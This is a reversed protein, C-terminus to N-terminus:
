CNVFTDGGAYACTDVLTGGSTRFFAKDGDNNWIYAGSRWYLDNSDNTGRGTHIKVTKGGGLRFTPFTYEHGARDKLTWGRLSRARTGTNKIVVYEQNLSSNSGDDTGPSNYQIKTICIAASAWAPVALLAFAVVLMVFGRVKGM